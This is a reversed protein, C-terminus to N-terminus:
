KKWTFSFTSGQGMESSITIVGEQQEIIKKVITLGIGTSECKDKPQLTQFIGFIKEQHEPKIGVGNDSIHFQYHSGKDEFGIKIRIEPKDNYKIGNIILNQLVEHLKVREALIVPLNDPTEIVVNAAPSILDIISNILEKLDVDERDVRSNAMRSYHLIGDILQQMRATRNKMMNLLEQVEPKKQEGIEDELFSALSALGRLPAKLDHSVIYVFEGLQKNLSELRESNERLEIKQRYLKEFVAVKAKVVNVDLPKHLYDVAGEEYGLMTYKEEKSLATVFIISIDRTKSNDKLLRAVEFGDMEPMQVDLLMVAIDEKLAISLAENGSGAKIIERGTGELISELSILNEPRDDVLLIKVPRVHKNTETRAPSIVAQM